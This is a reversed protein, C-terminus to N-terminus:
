LYVTLSSAHGHHPGVSIQPDQCSEILSLLNVLVKSAKHLSQKSAPMRDDTEALGHAVQRCVLNWAESSLGRGVYNAPRTILWKKLLWHM